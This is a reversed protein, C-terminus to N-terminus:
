ACWRWLNAHSFSPSLEITSHGPIKTRSITRLLLRFIFPAASSRGAVLPRVARQEYRYKGKAENSEVTGDVCELERGSGLGSDVDCDRSDRGDM